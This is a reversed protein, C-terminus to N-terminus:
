RRRDLCPATNSVDAHEVIAPARDGDARRALATLTGLSALDYSVAHYGLRDPHRRHFGPRPTSTASRGAWTSRPSATASCSATSRAPAMADAFYLLDNVTELQPLGPDHFITDIQSVLSTWMLQPATGDDSGTGNLNETPSTSSTAARIASVDPAGRGHRQRAIADSQGLRTLSPTLYRQRRHHTAGGDGAAAEKLGPSLHDLRAPM